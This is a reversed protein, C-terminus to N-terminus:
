LGWKRRETEGKSRGQKAFWSCVLVISIRLLIECAMILLAHFIFSAYAEALCIQHPRVATDSLSELILSGLKADGSKQM